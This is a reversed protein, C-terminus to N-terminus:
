WHIISSFEKLLHLLSAPCCNSHYGKIEQSGLPLSSPLDVKGFSIDFGLDNQFWLFFFRTGSKRGTKRNKSSGTM